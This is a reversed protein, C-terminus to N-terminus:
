PERWATEVAERNEPDPEEPASAGSVGRPKSGRWPVDRLERRPDYEGAARRPNRAGVAVRAHLDV